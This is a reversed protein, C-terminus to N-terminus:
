FTSMAVRRWTNTAICIYLYTTGAVTQWMFTGQIGTAASSAPATPQTTANLLVPFGSPNLSLTAGSGTADVFIGAGGTNIITVGANGSTSTDELTIGGGGANNNNLTIGANAGTGDNEIIIGNTSSTDTRILVQGTGSGSVSITVGGSSTDTIDMGSTSTLQLFGASYTLSASGSITNVGSGVAIEGAAITGGIGGGGGGCDCANVVDAMANFARALQEYLKRIMLSYNKLEPPDPPTFDVTWLIHNLKPNPTAM